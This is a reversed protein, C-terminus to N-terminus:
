YRHPAFCDLSFWWSQCRWELMGMFCEALYLEHTEATKSQGWRGYELDWINMENTGDKMNEDKKSFCEEHKYEFIIKGTQINDELLM